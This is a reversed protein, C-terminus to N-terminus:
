SDRICYLLEKLQDESPPSRILWLEENAGRLMSINMAEQRNEPTGCKESGVLPSQITFKSLSQYTEELVLQCSCKFIQQKKKIHRGM